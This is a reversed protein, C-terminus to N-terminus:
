VPGAPRVFISSRYMGLVFANHHPPPCLISRAPPWEVITVSPRQTTSPTSCRSTALHQTSSPVPPHYPKKDLRDLLLSVKASKRRNPPSDVSPRVIGITLVFFFHQWSVFSSSFGSWHHSFLRFALSKSKLSSHSRLSPGFLATLSTTTGDTPIITHEGFWYVVERCCLYISVHGQGMVRERDQVPICVYIWSHGFLM